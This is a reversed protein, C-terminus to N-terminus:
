FMAGSLAWLFALVIQVISLLILLASGLIAKLSKHIVSFILILISGLVPILPLFTQWDGNFVTAEGYKMAQFYEYAPFFWFLLTPFLILLLFIPILRNKLM